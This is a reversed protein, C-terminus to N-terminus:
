IYLGQVKKMIELRKIAYQSKHKYSQNQLLPWAGATLKVHTFNITVQFPVIVVLLKGFHLLLM